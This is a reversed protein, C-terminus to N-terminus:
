CGDDVDEGEVGGMRLVWWWTEWGAPRLQVNWGRGRLVRVGSIPSMLGSVEGGAVHQDVEVGRRLRDPDVDTTRNRGKYTAEKEHNVAHEALLPSM